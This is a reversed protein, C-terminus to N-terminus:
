GIAEIPIPNCSFKYLIAEKYIEKAISRYEISEGSLYEMMVGSNVELVLFSSKTKIIDISAFSIQLANATRDALTCLTELLATDTVIEATAGQGLNHKWHLPYIEDKQLIQNYDANRSYKLAEPSIEKEKIKKTYLELLTSNGDGILHPRIKSYVLKAKGNLIIVRYENDVSYYPSIAMSDAKAFIIQSAHEAELKTKVLYVMDGGTGHNDKLVLTGYQQLMTEIQNWNGLPSAYEMTIPSMCCIHEVNPIHHLKMVESATCKDSCISSAVASNLPFQYGYIYTEKEQKKLHFAWYDSLPTCTIGEEECIELILQAFNSLYSSM